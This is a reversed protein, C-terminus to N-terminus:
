IRYTLSDQPGAGFKVIEEVRGTKGFEEVESKSLRLRLSGRNLRLKM